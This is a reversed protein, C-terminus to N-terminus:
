KFFFPLKKTMAEKTSALDGRLGKVDSHLCFLLYGVVCLVLVHAVRLATRLM